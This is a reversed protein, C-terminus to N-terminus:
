KHRLCASLKKGTQWNNLQEKWSKWYDGAPIKL